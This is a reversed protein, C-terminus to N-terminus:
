SNDGWCKANGAVLVACGFREGIALSQVNSSLQNVFDPTPDANGSTTARGLQPATSNEGWCKVGGPLGILACGFGSGMGISTVNSLGSVQRPTASSSGSAFGLQKQANTGWCWVTKDELLACTHGYGASVATATTIVPVRLPTSSSTVDFTGLQGTANDGWCYVSKDVIVCAHLSGVALQSAVVRQALTSEGSDARAQIPAVCVAVLALTSVVIRRLILM